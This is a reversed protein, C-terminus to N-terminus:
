KKLTGKKVCWNTILAITIAQMPRGDDVAAARFAKHIKHPLKLNFRRFEIAEGSENTWKL